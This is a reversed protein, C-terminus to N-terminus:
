DEEDSYYSQCYSYDDMHEKSPQPTYYDLSSARAARIAM